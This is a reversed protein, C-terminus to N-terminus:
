EPFDTEPKENYDLLKGPSRNCFIVETKPDNGPKSHLIFMNELNSM